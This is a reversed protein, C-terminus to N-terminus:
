LGVYDNNGGDHSFSDHVMATQGLPSTDLSWLGRSTAEEPQEAAHDAAESLASPAEDIDAICDQLQAEDFHEVDGDAYQVLYLRQRTVRGMAIDIVRGEHWIGAHLKRISCALYPDTRKDHEAMADVQEDLDPTSHSRLDSQPGCPLASTIALRDSM